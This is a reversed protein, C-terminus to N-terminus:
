GHIGERKDAMLIRRGETAGIGIRVDASKRRRRNPPATSATTSPMEFPEPRLITPAQKPATPNQVSNLFTARYRDHTQTPSALWRSLM